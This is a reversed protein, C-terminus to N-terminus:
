WAFVRDTRVYTGSRESLKELYGLEEMEELDRRATRQSADPLYHTHYEGVSVKQGPFSEHLFRQARESLTNDSLPDRNPRLYVTLRVGGGVEEWRPEPLGARRCEVVIRRTGSGWQEIMGRIFAVNAIDPNHPRSVKARALNRGDIGEPLAGPNWIEFGDPHLAIMINANAQQYDRHVLANMVAERIVFPPVSTSDSRTYESFTSRISLHREFFSTVEEFLAFLNGEAVRNDLFKTRDADAFSALKVRTQPLLRAPNRAFLVVASNNLREAGALNLSELFQMPTDHWVPATISRNSSREMTTLLERDDLDDMTVGLAPEREWRRGHEVRGVIMSSIEAPAASRIEGSAWVFIRDEVVYPQETGLPVDILVIARDPLQKRVISLQARPSVRERLEGELEDL